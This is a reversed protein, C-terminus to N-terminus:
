EMMLVSSGVKPASVGVSSADSSSSAGGLMGSRGLSVSGDAASGLKPSPSAADPARRRLGGGFGRDRRDSALASLGGGFGCRGRAVGSARVASDGPTSASTAATAPRKSAATACGAGGRGDGPAGRGDAGAGNTLAGDTLAGAGAAGGTAEAAGDALGCTVPFVAEGTGAWGRGDAVGGTPVREVDVEGGADVGDATKGTADRADGIAGADGRGWSAPLSRAGARM